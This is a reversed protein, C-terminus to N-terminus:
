AKRRVTVKTIDDNQGWTRAADAIAQAPQTSIERTRATLVRVAEEAGDRGHHRREPGLRARSRRDGAHVKPSIDLARAFGRSLAVLAEAYAAASIERANLCSPVHRAGPRCCTVFALPSESMPVRVSRLSLAASFCLM